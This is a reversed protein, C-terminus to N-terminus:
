ALYILLYDKNYNALWYDSLVSICESTLWVVLTSSKTFITWLKRLFTWRLHKGPNDIRKQVVRQNWFNLCKSSCQELTKSKSYTNAWGLLSTRTMFLIIRPWLLFEMRFWLMKKKNLSSEVKHTFSQFHFYFVADTARLYCKHNQPKSTEQKQAKQSKM